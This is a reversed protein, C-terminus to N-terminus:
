LKAFLVSPAKGCARKLEEASTCEAFVYRDARVLVYRRGQLWTRIGYMDYGAPKPRNINLSSKKFEEITAVRYIQTPSISTSLAPAELLPDHVIYCVEEINLEGRSITHLDIGKLESYATEAETINSVSVVLRLLSNYPSRFIVDDTFHVQSDPNSFVSRCYVQPFLIGGAFESLFSM